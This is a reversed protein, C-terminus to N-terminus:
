HVLSLPTSRSTLDEPGSTRPSAAGFLRKESLQLSSGSRFSPQTRFVSPKQICPQKETAHLMPIPNRLEIHYFDGSSIQIVEEILIKQVKIILISPLQYQNDPLHYSEKGKRREEWQKRRKNPKCVKLVEAIWKFSSESLAIGIGPLSSQLIRYQCDPSHNKEEKRREKEKEKTQLSQLPDM